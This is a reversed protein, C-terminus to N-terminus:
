INITKQLQFYRFAILILKYKLVQSHYYGSFLNRGFSGHPQCLAAGRYPMTRGEFFYQCNKIREVLNRKYEIIIVLKENHWIYVSM